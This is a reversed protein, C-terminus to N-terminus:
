QRLREVLRRASAAPSRQFAGVGGAARVVAAPLQKRDRAFQSDLDNLVMAYWRMTDTMRPDNLLRSRAEPKFTSIQAMLDMAAVAADIEARKVTDDMAEPPADIVNKIHKRFAALDRSMKALVRAKQEVVLPDAGLEALREAAKAARGMGILEKADGVARGFELSLNSHDRLFEGSKKIRVEDIFRATAILGLTKAASPADSFDIPPDDITTGGPTRDTQELPGITSLGQIARRGLTGTYGQIVNDIQAPSALNAVSAVRGVVPTEAMLDALWISFGSAFERGKFHDSIQQNAVDYEGIIPRRLFQFDFNIANEIMPQYVTPIPAFQWAVNEIESLSDGMFSKVDDTASPNRPDLGELMRIPLSGFLLGIEHPKPIKIWAGNSTQTFPQLARGALIDGKFGQSPESGGADFVLADQVSAPLHEIWEPQVKFHWYFNKQWEPLRWWDDDERYATWELLSPITVTTFFVPWTAPDKLARGTRAFGQMRANWFAASMRLANIAPFAGHRGFDVTVERSAIAAAAAARDPPVGDAIQQRMVRQFEGLRVAHESVLGPSQVLQQFLNFGRGPDMINPLVRNGDSMNRLQRAVESRDMSLLSIQSGGSRRWLRIVENADRGTIEQIAKGFGKVVDETARGAAIAGSKPSVVRAAQGLLGAGEKPGGRKAYSFAASMITDRTMNAIAFDPALTVGARLIRGIIPMTLWKWAGLQAPSLSILARYMAPSVSFSRQVGDVDNVRVILGARRIKTGILGDLMEDSLEDVLDFGDEQPLVKKVDDKFTKSTRDLANVPRFNRDVEVVGFKKATEPGERVMRSVARGVRARMILNSHLFTNQIWQEFPDIYDFEVQGEIKHVGEPLSAFRKTADLKEKARFVNLPIYEGNRTVLGDEGVGFIRDVAGPRLVGEREMLTLWERNVDQLEGFREIMQPDHRELREIAETIENERGSFRHKINRRSLEGFRRLMAYRRFTDIDDVSGVIQKFGRTITELRFLDGVGFEITDQAYGAYGSAMRAADAASTSENFPPAAVFPAKKRVKARLKNQAREWRVIPDIRDVIGQVAKHRAMNVRGAAWGLDSLLGGRDPRRGGQVIAGGIEAVIDEAEEGAKRVSRFTTALDFVAGVGVDFAKSMLSSEAVPALQEVGLGQLAAAAGEGKPVTVDVAAGPLFRAAGRQAAGLKGPAGSLRGAAGVGPAIFAAGESAIRGVGRGAKGATTQPRTAERFGGAVRSMAGGLSPSQPLDVGLRKGAEVALRQPNTADIIEGAGTLKSLATDVGGLGVQLAPNDVVGSIVADSIDHKPDRLEKLENLVMQGEASDGFRDEVIQMAKTKGHRRILKEASQRALEQDPDHGEIHPM